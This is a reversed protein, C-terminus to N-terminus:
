GILSHVGVMCAIYLTRLPLRLVDSSEFALRRAGSTKAVEAVAPLEAGETGVVHGGVPVFALRGSIKRPKALRAARSAGSIGNSDSADCEGCGQNVGAQVRRPNGQPRIRAAGMPDNVDVLESDLCEDNRELSAACTTPRESCHGVARRAPLPPGCLIRPREVFRHM